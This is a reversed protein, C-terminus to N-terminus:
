VRRLQDLLAGAVSHDSVRYTGADIQSKLAEVKAQRVEPTSLASEALKGVGTEFQVPGFNASSSRAEANSRQLESQQSQTQEIGSGPNLDIRM